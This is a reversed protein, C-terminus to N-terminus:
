GGGDLAELQRRVKQVRPSIMGLTGEAADLTQQLLTRAREREGADRLLTALRCVANVHTLTQAGMVRRSTEIAYELMPRAADARGADAYLTALEVITMLTNPHEDGLLQHWTELNRRYLDEAEVLAGRERLLDALNNMSTATAPHRAGVLREWGAVAQRYFDEAEDARGTSELVAALNHLTSLTDEHDDGLAVRRLDLARRYYTEADRFRQQADLTTALNHLAAGTAEHAPGFIRESIELARRYAQEAAELDHGAYLCGGLNDCCAATTPHDPGLAEDAIRLARRYIPEATDLANRAKRLAALNVLHPILDPGSQGVAEARELAGRYAREAADVDGQAEHLLALRHATATTDPHDSGLAAERIRFARELLPRAEDYDGRDLRFAAWRDLAAATVPAAPGDTRERLGTGTRLLEDLRETAGLAELVDVAAEIRAARAADTGAAGAAALAARVLREGPWGDLLDIRAPGTALAMWADADDLLAERAAMDGARALHWAADGPLRTAWQRHAAAVRAPGARHALAEAVVRGLPHVVGEHSLRLAAPAAALAAAVVDPPLGLADALLALGQDRRAAALLAVLRAGAGDATGDLERAVVALADDIASRTRAESAPPADWAPWDSPLRAPEASALLMRLGPPRYRDPLDFADRDVRDCGAVAVLAGGHAAARALWNPLYARLGELTDPLPERLHCHDRVATLLRRYLAAVEATDGGAGADHFFVFAGPHEARFRDTAAAVLAAADRAEGEVIAAAAAPGSLHAALAEPMSAGTGRRDALIADHRVAANATRDRPAQADQM